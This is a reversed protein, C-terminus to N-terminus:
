FGEIQFPFRLYHAGDAWLTEAFVDINDRTGSLSTDVLGSTWVVVSLVQSHQEPNSPFVEPNWMLVQVAFQEFPVDQAWARPLRRIGSPAGSGSPYPPIQLAPLDEMLTPEYNSIGSLQTQWTHGASTFAQSGPGIGFVLYCEPPPCPSTAYEIRVCDGPAPRALGLGRNGAANEVGVSATVNASISGYRFEIADSGEFLIAQFTNSDGQDHQPVGNWQAVFMRDPATGLTIAHVSGGQNPSFDDWLPCIIDDPNATAPIPDNTADSTDPGFTLYGNSCVNVTSKALGFFSFGFGLPVNVGADDGLGLDPAMGSIDLFANACSSASYDNADTCETNDGLYTGGAALCEAPSVVYCIDQLSGVCCAGLLCGGGGRCAVGDDTVTLTFPGADTFQFGTVLVFYRAGAQSCWSVQSQPGCFDNSAGVCDLADCSGCYVILVTNYTTGTCTSATMTNGTGTITYWVSKFGVVQGMCSPASDFTSLETTGQVSAPVSPIDIADVCLDNPPPTPPDGARASAAFLSCGLLAAATRTTALARM